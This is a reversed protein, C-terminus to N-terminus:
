VELSRFACIALNRKRTSWDCAIRLARDAPSCRLVCLVVFWWRTLIQSSCMRASIMALWVVLELAARISAAQLVKQPM